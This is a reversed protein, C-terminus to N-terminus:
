IPPSTKQKKIYLGEVFQTPNRFGKIDIVIGKKCKLFGLTNWGWCEPNSDAAEKIKDLSGDIKAIDFGVSDIFPYFDYGDYETAEKRTNILDMHQQLGDLRTSDHQIDSDIGVNNNAIQTFVMAPEIKYMNLKISTAFVYILHDVERGFGYLEAMRSLNYAASKTMVYGYLGAKWKSLDLPEIIMSEIPISILKKNGNYGLFLIDIRKEKDERMKITNEDIWQLKENFGEVIDVDDEFIACLDETGNAVKKWAYYHSFACGITAKKYGYSCRQVTQVISRTTVLDKGDTANLFEVVIGNEDFKKQMKERRDPRRKLNICICRM